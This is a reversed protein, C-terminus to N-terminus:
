LAQPSYSRGGFQSYAALRAPPGPLPAAHIESLLRHRFVPFRLAPAGLGRLVERGVRVLRGKGGHFRAQAGIRREHKCTLGALQLCIESLDALATSEQKLATVAGLAKGFKGGVVNTVGEAHQQLHRNHQGKGRGRRDHLHATDGTLERLRTGRRGFGDAVHCQRGIEAVVDITDVEVLSRAHRIRLPQEASIRLRGRRQVQQTGERIAAIGVEIEHMAPVEAEDGVARFARAVLFERVTDGLREVEHAGAADVALRLGLKMRRIEVRAVLRQQETVLLRHRADVAGRAVPVVGGGVHEPDAVACALRIVAM